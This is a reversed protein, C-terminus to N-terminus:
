SRRAFYSGAKKDETGADSRDFCFKKKVWLRTEPFSLCLPLSISLLISLFSYFFCLFTDVLNRIKKKTQSIPVPQLLAKQVVIERSEPEEESESLCCLLGLELGLGLLQVLNPNKEPLLLGEVGRKCDWGTDLGLRRQRVVDSAAWACITSSLGLSWHLVLVGLVELLGLVSSAKFWVEGREGRLNDRKLFLKLNLTLVKM